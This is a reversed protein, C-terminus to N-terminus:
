SAATGPKNLTLTSEQNAQLASKLLTFTTGDRITEKIMRLDVKNKAPEYLSCVLSLDVLKLEDLYSCLAYLAIKEM